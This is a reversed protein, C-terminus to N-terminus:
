FPVTSALVNAVNAFTKGTANTKHTVVIRCRKHLLDEASVEEGVAPMHGLIAAVWRGLKTDESMEVSALGAVRREDWEGGTTLTFEIRVMPGSQSNMDRVGCVEADYEGEAVVARAEEMRGKWMEM